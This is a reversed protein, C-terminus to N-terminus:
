LLIGHVVHEGSEADFCDVGAGPAGFAGHGGGTAQDVRDARVVALEQRLHLEYLERATVTRDSEGLTQNKKWM